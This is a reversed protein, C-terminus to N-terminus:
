KRWNASRAETSKRFDGKREISGSLEYRLQSKSMETREKGGGRREGRRTTGLGARRERFEFGMYPVHFPNKQYCVWTELKYKSTIRM